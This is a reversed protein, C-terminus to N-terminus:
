IFFLPLRECEGKQPLSTFAQFVTILKEYLEEKNQKYLSWIWRTDSRRERIWQLWSSAKPIVDTLSAIFADEARKERELEEKKTLISEQLM